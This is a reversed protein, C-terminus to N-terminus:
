DRLSRAQDRATKALAFARSGRLREKAARAPRSSFPSWTARMFISVSTYHRGQQELVVHPYDTFKRVQADEIAKALPIVKERTAASVSFDIPEVLELGRAGECVETIQEPTFLTLNGETLSPAGNIIVETTFGVIGGPKVVRRQEALAQSAGPIAGFHEISSLSYVGDFTAAEYRLDLANMYQVVLRRRDYPCRAVADPDILIKTDAEINSFSGSGYIDTCFVWRVDNTLDFAVEEQGAAVALVWSNRGLVGLQRFGNLLQAFEWHKRHQMGDPFDRSQELFYPVIRRVTARLEPSEWDELNCLKNLGPM